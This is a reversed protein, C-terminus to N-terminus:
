CLLSGTYFAMAGNFEEAMEMIDTVVKTCPNYFQLIHRYSFRDREQKWFGNLLLIRGDGLVDLAKNRFLSRPMQITYQKVWISKKSDVLLWIDICTGYGHGYQYSFPYYVTQVINLTAKLEALVIGCSEGDKWLEMGPGDIMEKWEESELDFTAICHQRDYTGYQMFYLIGNVMAKSGGYGDTWVPPTRRRWTPEADYSNITAIECLQDDGDDYIHFVKYAGSPVARGLSYYSCSSRPTGIRPNREGGVALVKGAAPDIIKADGGGQENYVCILDLRTPVLSMCAVDKFVRLVSGDMDMVRLEYSEDDEAMSRSRFVGAILPAARSKQVAVFTQDSILARWRKCVCRFRCLVNAPLRTLVDFIIDEPLSVSGGGKRLSASEM